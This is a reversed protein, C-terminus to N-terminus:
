ANFHIKKTFASPKGLLLIKTYQLISTSTLCEHPLGSRAGCQHFITHIIIVYASMTLLSICYITHALTTYVSM